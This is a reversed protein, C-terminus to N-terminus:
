FLEQHEVYYLTSYKYVYSYLLRGHNCYSTPHRQNVVLSMNVFSYDFYIYKVDVRSLFVECSAIDKM